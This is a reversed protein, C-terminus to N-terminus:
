LPADPVTGPYKRALLAVLAEAGHKTDEQTAVRRLLRDVWRFEDGAYSFVLSRIDHQSYKEMRQGMSSDEKVNGAEPAPTPKAPEGGRLTALLDEDYGTGRLGELGELLTLLQGNDYDGLDALRNDALLIRKGEEDDVDIFVAEIETWDLAKAAKMTHNGALVWRTAAQVVIPRYQGHAMLSEAITAIDGRRPNAPHEILTAIPVTEVSLEPAPRM